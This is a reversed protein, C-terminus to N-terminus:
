KQKRNRRSGDINLVHEVDYLDYDNDDDDSLGLIYKTDLVADWESKGEKLEKDFIIRSLRTVADGLQTELEDKSNLYLEDEEGYLTKLYRTRFLSAKLGKFMYMAKSLEEFQEPIIDITREDPTEVYKKNKDDWEVKNRGYILQAGLKRNGTFQLKIPLSEPIFNDLMTIQGGNDLLYDFQNKYKNVVSNAADTEPGGFISAPFRLMIRDTGTKTFNYKINDLTGMSKLVTFKSDEAPADFEVTYNVIDGFDSGTPIIDARIDIRSQHAIANGLLDQMKRYQEPRLQEFTDSVKSNALSRYEIIKKPDIMAAHLLSPIESLNSVAPSITTSKESEDSQAHKLVAEELTGMPKTIGGIVEIQPLGMRQIGRKIIDHVPRMAEIINSDDYIEALESRKRMYESISIGLRQELEKTSLNDRNKLERVEKTKNFLDYATSFPSKLIPDENFSWTGGDRDNTVNNISILQNRNGARHFGADFYYNNRNENGAVEDYTIDPNSYDFDKSEIFAYAFYPSSALRNIPITVKGYGDPTVEYTIGMGALQPQWYRFLGDNTTGSDIIFSVESNDKRDYMNTLTTCNKADNILDFYAKCAPNSKDGSMLAIYEDMIKIDEPTATARKGIYKCDEIDYGRQEFINTQNIFDQKLTQSGLVLRSAMGGDEDAKNKWMYTLFDYYDYDEKDAFQSSESIRNERDKYYSPLVSPMGAVSIDISSHKSNNIERAKNVLQQLEENEVSTLSDNNTDIAM